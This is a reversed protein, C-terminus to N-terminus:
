KRRKRTALRRNFEAMTREVFEQTIQEDAKRPGFMRNARWRTFGPVHIKFAAECAEWSPYRRMNEWILKAQEIQEPAFDKAPGTRKANEKSTRGRLDRAIQERVVAVMARRQAPTEALFGSDVDLIYGHCKRPLDALQEAFKQYDQLRRLAGRKRPDVLFSAHMIKFVTRERCMRILQERDTADLSLIRRCGSAQLRETQAVLSAWRHKRTLGIADETPLDIM